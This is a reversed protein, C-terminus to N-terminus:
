WHRSLGSTEPYSCFRRQGVRNHMHVPAILLPKRSSTVSSSIRPSYSVWPLDLLCVNKGPFLLCVFTSSLPILLLIFPVPNLSVPFPRSICNPTGPVFFHSITPLFTLSSPHLAKSFQVLSNTSYESFVVLLRPLIQLTSIVPKSKYKLFIRRTGAQLHSGQCHAHTPPRATM